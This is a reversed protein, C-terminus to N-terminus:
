REITGDDHPRMRPRIPKTKENEEKKETVVGLLDPGRDGWLGPGEVKYLNDERYGAWSVIYM